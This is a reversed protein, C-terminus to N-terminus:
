LRSGNKKLPRNFTQTGVSQNSLKILPCKFLTPRIPLQSIYSLWPWSSQYNKNTPRHLMACHNWISLIRRFYTWGFHNWSNKCALKQLNVYSGNGTAQGKCEFNTAQVPIIWCNWSNKSNPGITRRIKFFLIVVFNSHTVVFINNELKKCRSSIKKPKSRTVVAKVVVVLGNLRLSKWSNKM